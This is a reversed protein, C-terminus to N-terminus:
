FFRDGDFGPRNLGSDPGQLADDAEAVTGLMRLALLRLRPRNEKFGEDLWDKHDGTEM